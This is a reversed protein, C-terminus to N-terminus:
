TAPVPLRLPRTMTFPLPARSFFFLQYRTIIKQLRAQRSDIVTVVKEGTFNKSTKCDRLDLENQTCNLTLSPSSPEICRKEM